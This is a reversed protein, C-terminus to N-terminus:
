TATALRRPHRRRQQRRGMICVAPIDAFNERRTPEEGRIQAAINAAAVRAITEVPFGTKPVGLANAGEWPANIRQM